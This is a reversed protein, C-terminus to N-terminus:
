EHHREIKVSQIVRGTGPQSVSIRNSLTIGRWSQGGQTDQYEVLKAVEILGPAGSTTLPLELTIIEQNGSAGMVSLGRDRSQFEDLNLDDFQDPAPQDGATGFREVTTALGQTVGSVLVSNYHPQPQWQSAYSIVQADPIITDLENTPLNPYTWPGQLAYRHRIMVTDTDRAPLAVAGLSDALAAIVEMATKDEWGWAGAPITYDTLGQQWDITFGTFQLQDTMLQRVNIQSDVRGTRSPAFPAALLQTRSTGQIRWRQESFRRDLSYREIICVWSRGNVTARVQAPGDVTPKIRDASAQNLLTADLRWSISDMDLELSLDAFQLPTEDPLTVLSSANMIIYARRIDAPDPPDGPPLPPESRIPFGADTDKRPQTDWPCRTRVDHPPAMGWGAMSGGSVPRAPFILGTGQVPGLELLIEDGAPIRYPKSFIDLPGAPVAGVATSPEFFVRTTDHSHRLPIDRDVPDPNYGHASGAEKPVASEGWQQREPQQDKVSVQDWSQPVPILTMPAPTGWTLLGPDDNHPRVQNWGAGMAVARLNQLQDSSHLRVDVLSEPRPSAHGVESAPESSAVATAHGVTSMIALAPPLQPEPPGQVLPPINVRIDLALPIEYAPGSLDQSVGLPGPITYM